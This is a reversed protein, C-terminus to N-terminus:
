LKDDGIPEVWADLGVLSRIRPDNLSILVAAGGGTSHGLVGIKKLDFM